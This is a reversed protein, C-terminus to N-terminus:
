KIVADLISNTMDSYLENLIGSGKLTQLTQLKREVPRNTIQHTYYLGLRQPVKRDRQSRKLGSDASKAGTIVETSEPEVAEEDAEIIEVTHLDDDTVEITVPDTTKVTDMKRGVKGEKKDKKKTAATEINKEKPRTGLGTEKVTAGLKKQGGTAGLNTGIGTESEDLMVVATGDDEEKAIPLGEDLTAVEEEIEKSVVIKEDKEAVVPEVKDRDEVIPETKGKKEVADGLVPGKSHHPSNCANKWADGTTYTHSVFETVSDDDEDSSDDNAEM